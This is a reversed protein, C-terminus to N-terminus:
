KCTIKNFEERNEPQLLIKKCEKNLIKVKVESKTTSWQTGATTLHSANVRGICNYRTLKIDKCAINNM